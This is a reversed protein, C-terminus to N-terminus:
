MLMAIALIGLHLPYFIYLLYKTKLGQKGNYLLIPVIALFTCIAMNIYISLFNFTLMKPLYNLLVLALFGLSMIIKNSKLDIKLIYFAFVLLVGWYGYDINILEGLYICIGAFLLGLLKNPIKDYAYIAILGLILTFFVNLTFDIGLAYEYLNFPIQSILAFIFLRMFYKKFNHTHIYGESIQFAFIPFALRGIYNFWTFAGDFIFYGFHDFCMSIVAIMKLAFSSM